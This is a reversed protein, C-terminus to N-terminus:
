NESIPFYARDQRSLLHNFVSPETFPLPGIKSKHRQRLITPKTPSHIGEANKSQFTVTLTTRQGVAVSLPKPLSLVQKKGSAWNGGINRCRAGFRGRAATGGHSPATDAICVLMAVPTTEGCNGAHQHSLRLSQLPLCRGSEPQIGIQESQVRLADFQAESRKVRRLLFARLLPVFFLWSRTLGSHLRPQLPAPATALGRSAALEIASTKTQLPPTCARISSFSFRGEPGPNRWAYPRGPPACRSM